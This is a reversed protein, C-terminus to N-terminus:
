STIKTIWIIVLSLTLILLIAVNLFALPPFVGFKSLINQIHNRTTAQSINLTRAIEDTKLGYALQSLVEEERMTLVDHESIPQPEVIKAFQPFANLAM